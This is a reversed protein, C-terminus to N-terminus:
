FIVLMVLYTLLYTLIVINYHTWFGAPSACRCKGASGGGTVLLLYAL